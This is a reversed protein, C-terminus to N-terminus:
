GAINQRLYVKSGIIQIKVSSSPSPILDPRDEQVKEIKFQYIESHKKKELGCSHVSLFRFYNLVIKIYKKSSIQCFQGSQSTYRGPM